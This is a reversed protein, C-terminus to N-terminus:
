PPLQACYTLKPAIFGFALLCFSANTGTFGDARGSKVMVMCFGGVKLENLGIDGHYIYYLLLQIEVGNTEFFPPEISGDSSTVVAYLRSRYCKCRSNCSMTLQDILKSYTSYRIAVLYIDILRGVDTSSELSQFDIFRRLGRPDVGVGNGFM